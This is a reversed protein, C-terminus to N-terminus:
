PVSKFLTGDFEGGTGQSTVGYLARGRSILGAMPLANGFDHVVTEAGTGEDVGFLIGACVTSVGTTVGYLVGTVDVLSTPPFCGDTGAVFSYLVTHTGTTADVKYVTGCGMAGCGTTGQYTTGGYYTTGYFAGNVYTVAAAPVSGDLGGQFSYVVTERGNRPDVKFVVGSGFAGGTYATGYLLGDHAILGAYPTGGDPGNKFAYLVTEAGTTLDITYVTGYQGAGGSYTTGYLAGRLYIPPNLPAYGDVGTFQHLVTLQATAPDIRFVTGCGNGCVRKMLGGSSTVGYLMDNHRMVGAPYKGDAGTFSHLVTETRTNSDFRFVTGCGSGNCSNVGGSDTTGFFTGDRNALGANPYDGDPQGKFSYLTRYTQAHTSSAPAVALFGILGAAFLAASKM